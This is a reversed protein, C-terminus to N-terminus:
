RNLYKERKLKLKNLIYEPNLKKECIGIKEFNFSINDKTTSELFFMLFYTTRVKSDDNFVAM